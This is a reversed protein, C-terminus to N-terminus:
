DWLYREDFEIENALLFQMRMLGETVSKRIAIYQVVPVQSQSVSFAGDGKQWCSLIGSVHPSDLRLFRAKIDRVLDAITRDQRVKALIHVHDVVGNIALTVGQQEKVGGALFDLVSPM